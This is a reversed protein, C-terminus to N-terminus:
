IESSGTLQRWDRVTDIDQAGEPWEIEVIRQARSADARAWDADGSDSGRLLVRAGQDGRLRKLAKFYRVPFVAPVGRQGEYRSCVLTGNADAADILADLHSSTLRPQDCLMLLLGRSSYQEAWTVARRISSAIGQRYDSNELVEVELGSVDASVAARHAGLVLGVRGARCSLACRTARRLLSEGQWLLLQKPSGLRRSEGAALVACAWTSSM